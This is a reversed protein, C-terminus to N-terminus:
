KRIWLVKESTQWDVSLLYNYSTRHLVKNSNIPHCSLCGAQLFRKLFWAWSSTIGPFFALQVFRFTTTSTTTTTTTTTADTTTTPTTTTTTSNIWSQPRLVLYCLHCYAICYFICYLMCYLFMLLLNNPSLISIFNPLSCSRLFYIDPIKQYPQPPTSIQQCMKISNYNM